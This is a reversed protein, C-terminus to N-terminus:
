AAVGFKGAEDGWSEWGPRHKRSFVDARPGEGFLREALTYAENPKESHRLRPALITSPIAKAVRPSGRKAIIFPEHTGRLVKGTGAWPKGSKSTKVWVVQTSYTFGWAAMAQLAHPLMPATAWLWLWCHREALSRVPLDCIEELPMCRYHHQASRGEGKPSRAKYLWPPDILIVRHAAAPLPAFYHSM